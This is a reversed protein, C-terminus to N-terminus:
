SAAAILVNEVKQDFEQAITSATPQGYCSLFSAIRNYSLHIGDEREDILISAPAYSAADPLHETLQRLVLPNGVLLRLSKASKGANGKSMFRGVDVRMYELLGSPGIMKQVIFEFDSYSHTSSIARSLMTDDVPGIQASLVSMVEHFQKTSVVSFREIGIKEVSM